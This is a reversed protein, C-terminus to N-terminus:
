LIEPDRCVSTCDLTLTLMQHIYVRTCCMKLIRSMSTGNSILMPAELASIDVNPTELRASTLM